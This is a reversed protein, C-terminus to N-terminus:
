QVGLGDIGGDARQLVVVMDAGAPRPIKYSATGGSWSGLATVSRVVNIETLTAGGNEGGGIQTTHMRDDGFLWVTEPQAIKGRGIAVSVSKGNSAVAIPVAPNQAARATAIAATLANRDSGVLQAGGDVVAEPTYVNDSNQLRAYWNQRTTAADLSDTDTWAPGNWYTVNFSLPLIDRDSKQLSALLADAPPCSSCAQSTFLEVLVPRADAPGGIIASVALAAAFVKM